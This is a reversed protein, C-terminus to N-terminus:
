EQAAPIGDTIERPPLTKEMPKFGAVLYGVGFPGEYSYVKSDVKYGDLAGLLINIPRYGCEGAAEVLGMDMDMIASFDAREIFDVLAHDFERGHVNYGAPAEPTLRHSLDGSAIVAVSKSSSEIVQQIAMGFEYLKDNAFMAMGMVVIKGSFGAQRFYELPVMVGHDLELRIGLQKAEQEEAVLTFIGKDNATMAIQNAIDLDNTFKMQVRPANFGAFSGALSNGGLIVIADQFVPAHPSILVLTEPRALTLELALAELGSVTMMAERREVGGVESIIIPPHPTVAGLVIRGM